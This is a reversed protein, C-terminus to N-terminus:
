YIMPIMMNPLMNFITSVPIQHHVKPTKSNANPPELDQFVAKEDLWWASEQRWRQFILQLAPCVWRCCQCTQSRECCFSVDMMFLTDKMTRMGAADQLAWTYIYLSLPSGKKRQEALGFNDFVLSFCSLYFVRFIIWGREEKFVPVNLWIYIYRMDSQENIMVKGSFWANEQHNFGLKWVCGFINQGM